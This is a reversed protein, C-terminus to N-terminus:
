VASQWSNDGGAPWFGAEKESVEKAVNFSRPGKGPELGEMSGRYEGKERVTESGRKKARLTVSTKEGSPGRWVVPYGVVIPPIKAKLLSRVTVEPSTTPKTLPYQTTAASGEASAPM